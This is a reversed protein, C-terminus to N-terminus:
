RSFKKRQRDLVTKSFDTVNMLWCQQEVTFTNLITGPVVLQLRNAKMENTQDTSISPELTLLHKNKIRKAETLVQRWRDKCTTKVGLMTLLRVPYIRDHYEQISPFVFDPKSKNETVKNYSYKVGLCDFLHRLHNEFAYGARSKRRNQVSLSFEIFNDVNDFGTQLKEGLIHREFIRFLSEEHDLWETLAADADELPDVDKVLSRAFASFDSTKPFGEPFKELINDLLPDQPQELFIGIKELILSSFYDLNVNRSIARAKGATTLSDLKIGFLWALQHEITDGNKAIFMTVTEDNNKCLVM